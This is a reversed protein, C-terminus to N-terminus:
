KFLTLIEDLNKRFRQKVPVKMNIHMFSFMEETCHNFIETFEKKTYRPPCYEEVLRLEESKSAAFVMLSSAQLRCARPIKNFVQSGIWTSINLHRCQIFIKLITPSRLFKECSQIDDLVILIRDSKTIGNNEIFSKQNEVIEALTTEDFTTYIDNEALGAYKRLNDVLDDGGQATPSFLFIRDFYHTPKREMSSRGKAKEREENFAEDDLKKGYFEPRCLLSVMLNTKGSGTKGNFIVSSSHRPIIGEEMIRRQEILSKDTKFPLIKYGAKGGIIDNPLKEDETKKFKIERIIRTGGAKSDTPATKSMGTVPDHDHGPANFVTSAFM